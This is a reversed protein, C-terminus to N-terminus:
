KDGEKGSEMKCADKGESKPERKGRQKERRSIAQRLGKAALYRTYPDLQKWVKVQERLVTTVSKGRRVLECARDILPDGHRGLKLPLQM